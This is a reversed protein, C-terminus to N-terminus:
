LLYFYKWKFYSFLTFLNCWHSPAVANLMVVSLKVVNLMIPKITVSPMVVNLMISKIIINPMVVNLMISKITVSLMFYVWCQSVGSLCCASNDNYLIDKHQTDKHQTDNHQIVGLAMAYYPLVLLMYFKFHRWSMWCLSMWCLSVWCLPSM